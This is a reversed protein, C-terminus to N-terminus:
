PRGAYRGLAFEALARVEAPDEGTVEVLAVGRRVAVLGHRRTDRDYKSYAADGVGRVPRADDTAERLAEFDSAPMWWVVFARDAGGKRVRYVCRSSKSDPMVSREGVPTAGIRAALAAAPVLACVDPAAMDAAAAPLAALGLAIGALTGPVKRSPRDM